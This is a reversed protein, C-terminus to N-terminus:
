SVELFDCLNWFIHRDPYVNRLLVSEQFNYVWKLLTLLKPFTQVHGFIIFFILFHAFTRLIIRCFIGLSLFSTFCLAPVNAMNRALFYLTEFICGLATHSSSSRKTRRNCARKRASTTPWDIRTGHALKFCKREQGFSWVQVHETHVKNNLATIKDYQLRQSPLKYVKAIERANKRVGWGELYTTWKQDPDVKNLFHSKLKVWDAITEYFTRREKTCSFPEASVLNHFSSFSYKNQAWWVCFKLHKRIIDFVTLYM